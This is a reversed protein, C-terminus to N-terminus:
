MRAVEATQDGHQISQQAYIHEHQPFLVVTVVLLLALQANERLYLSRLAREFYVVFDNCPEIIPMVRSTALRVNTKVGSACKVCFVSESM